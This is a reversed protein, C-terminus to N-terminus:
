NLKQKLFTGIEKELKRYSSNHSFGEKFLFPFLLIGLEALGLSLLFGGFVSPPSYNISVENKNVCVEAGVLTSKGILINNKGLGFTKISYPNSFRLKLIKILEETSPLQKAFEIRM